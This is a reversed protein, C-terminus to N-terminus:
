NYLEYQVDLLAGFVDFSENVLPDQGMLNMPYAAGNAPIHNNGSYFPHMPSDTEPNQQAQHGQHSDGTAYAHMSRQFLDDMPFSTPPPMPGSTVPPHSTSTSSEPVPQTTPKPVMRSVHGRLESSLARLLEGFRNSLHVDDVVCTCLAEATREVLDLSVIAESDTKPTLAFAKLCFMAGALIRSYTRFPVHKLSEDPVLEELVTRLLSRAAAIVEMFYAANGEYPNLMMELPMHRGDSTGRAYHEVVAQLAVSNIYVQVYAFEIKLISRM